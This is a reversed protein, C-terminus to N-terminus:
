VSRPMSLHRRPDDPSLQELSRVFAHYVHEEYPPLDEAQLLELARTSISALSRTCSASPGTGSSARLRM